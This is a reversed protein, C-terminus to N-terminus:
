EFLFLPRKEWKDDLRLLFFDRTTEHGTQPYPFAELRPGTLAVM